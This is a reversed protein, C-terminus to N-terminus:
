IIKFTKLYMKTIDIKKSALFKVLYFDLDGDYDGSNDNYELLDCVLGSIVCQKKTNNKYNIFTLNIKIKPYKKLQM